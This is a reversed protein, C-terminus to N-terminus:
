TRVTIQKPKTAESKAATVTLVGNAMRASINDADIEGPLGIRRSFKGAERERRHCAANGGESEIKREGSIALTKGSIQVEIDESRIGPLEARVYYNDNTETLNVAPFVSGSAARMSPRGFLADSLMDMQRRMQEMEPFPYRWGTGPFGPIRRTLM